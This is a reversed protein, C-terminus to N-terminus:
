CFPLLDRLDFWKLPNTIKDEPHNNYIPNHPTIVQCTPLNCLYGDDMHFHRAPIICGLRPFTHCLAPEISVRTVRQALM